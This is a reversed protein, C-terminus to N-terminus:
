YGRRRIKKVKDLRSHLELQYKESASLHVGKPKAGYEVWGSSGTQTRAEHRVETDAGLLWPVFTMMVFVWALMKSWDEDIDLVPTPSFFIWLGMVLWTLGALMTLLLNRRSAAFITLCISLMLLGIFLYNGDIVM